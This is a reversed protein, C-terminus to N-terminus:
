YHEEICNEVIQNIYADDVTFSDELEQLENSICDCIKESYNFNGMEDSQLVAQRCAENKFNYNESTADGCSLMFIIISTITFLIKNM